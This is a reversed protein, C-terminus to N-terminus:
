RGIDRVLAEMEAKSGVRRARSVIEERAQRPLAAFREMAEMDQALTM